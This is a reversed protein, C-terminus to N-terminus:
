PYPKIIQDEIFRAWSRLTNRGAHAWQRDGNVDVDRAYDQIPPLRPGLEFKPDRPETMNFLWCPVDVAQWEARLGRLSLHANLEAMPPHKLWGRYFEKEAGELESMRSTLLTSFEKEYWYTKRTMEPVVIIVGKPRIERDVMLATNYQMFDINGGGIGLNIVPADLRQALQESLTDEYAVGVGLVYSCGMVVYSSKWDVEEFEPARYGHNNFTYTVAKDRYYWAPDMRKLNAKYLYENDGQFWPTTWPKGRHLDQRQGKHPIQLILSDYSYLHM